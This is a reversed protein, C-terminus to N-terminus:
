MKLTAPAGGRTAEMAEVVVLALGYTRTMAVFVEYKYVLISCEPLETQQFNQYLLSGKLLQSRLGIHPFHSASCFM